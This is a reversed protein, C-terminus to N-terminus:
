FSIRHNYHIPSVLLNTFNICSHCTIIFQHCFVCQKNVFVLCKFHINGLFSVVLSNLVPSQKTVAMSVISPVASLNSDPLRSKGPIQFFAEPFLSISSHDQVGGENFSRPALLNLIVRRCAYPKFSM